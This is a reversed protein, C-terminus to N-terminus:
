CECMVHVDETRSMEVMNCGYCSAAMIPLVANPAMSPLREKLPGQQDFCAM